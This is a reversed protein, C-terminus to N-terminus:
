HTRRRHTVNNNNSIRMSRQGADGGAVLLFRLWLLRLRKQAESDDDAARRGGLGARTAQEQRSGASVKQVLLLGIDVADM